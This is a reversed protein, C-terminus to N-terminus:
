RQLQYRWLWEYNQVGWKSWRATCWSCDRYHNM